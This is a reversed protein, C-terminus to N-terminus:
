RINRERHLVELMSKKDIRMVSCETMAAASGLRLPQGALRGEGFFDGESLIGITAERGTKSV